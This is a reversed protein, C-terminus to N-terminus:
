EVWYHGGDKNGILELKYKIPPLIEKEKIRELTSREEPTTQEELCETLITDVLKNISIM